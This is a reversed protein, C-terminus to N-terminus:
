RPGEPAVVGNELTARSQAVVVAERDPNEKYAGVQRRLEAFARRLATDLYPDDEGVALTRGPLKLKLDVKFRESRPHSIVRVALGAEAFDRVEEALASLSPQLRAREDEPIECDQTTIDIALRDVSFHM